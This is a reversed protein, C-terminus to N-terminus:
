TLHLLTRLAEDVDILRKLLPTHVFKRGIVVGTGQAGDVTLLVYLPEVEARPITNSKMCVSKFFRGLVKQAVRLEVEMIKERPIVFKRKWFFAIRTELVLDEPEGLSKQLRSLKEVDGSALKNWAAVLDKLVDSSSCRSAKVTPAQIPPESLFRLEKSARFGLLIRLFENGTIPSAVCDFFFSANRCDPFKAYAVPIWRLTGGMRDVLRPDVDVYRM